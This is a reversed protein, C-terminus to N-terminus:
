PVNADKFADSLTKWLYLNNYLKYQKNIETNWDQVVQEENRTVLFNAAEAITSKPIQNSALIVKLADEIRKAEDAFSTVYKTAIDEPAGQTTQVTALLEKITKGTEVNIGLDHLVGATHTPKLKLWAGAMGNINGLSYFEITSLVSSRGTKRFEPTGFSYGTAGTVKTNKAARGTLMTAMYKALAPGGSLADGSYCSLLIIDGSFGQPIGTKAETLYSILVNITVGGFFEGTRGHSVVYLKEGPILKSFDPQPELSVVSLTRDAPDMLRIQQVQKMIAYDTVNTSNVLIM